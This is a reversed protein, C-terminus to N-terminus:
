AGRGPDQEMERVVRVRFGKNNLKRAFADAQDRRAFEGAVVQVQNTEDWVWVYETLRLGHLRMEGLLRDRAHDRRTLSMTDLAEGCVLVWWRAQGSDTGRAAVKPVAVRSLGGLQARTLDGGRKAKGLASATRAMRLLLAELDDIQM